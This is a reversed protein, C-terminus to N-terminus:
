LDKLLINKASRKIKEDFGLNIEALQALSAMEPLQNKEQTELAKIFQYITLKNIDHAPYFVPDLPTDNKFEVIMKCTILTQLSSRIVMAPLGLQTTIEAMSLAKEAQIFQQIILQMVRLAILKKLRFSLFSFKDKYKHLAYYQIFFTMECGFLVLLWGLQLWIVFLPLATFSGYIANYSSVGLQLELYGWQVIQYFIGTISGAIIGANYNVKQNPMFIFIISFLISMIVMPSYNLLYLLYATGQTSFPTKTILGTIQTTVFVTISSSTILLIPALLMLSLYDSLKRAFNRHKKIKWIHNFSEEINGIVRIITWFLVIIGTGAVVGGETNALLNEAFQILRLILTEQEPIYDLLQEKLITEFGFGKAIGFLMAIVPVISLLTYLTLASARLLCLDHNFGQGALLLIRLGKIAVRQSQHLGDEAMFWIDEKLFLLTNKLM